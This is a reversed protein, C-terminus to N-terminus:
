YVTKSLDWYQNIIRVIRLFQSYKLPKVMYGAVNLKFADIIDQEEESSTLIVIPIVSLENNNDKIIKLFEFGNMKPLKLDLLVFFPKQYALNTLYDLATEGDNATVLKNPINLENFARKVTMIDILDDEILLIPKFSQMIMVVMEKIRKEKSIREKNTISFNVLSKFYIKSVM